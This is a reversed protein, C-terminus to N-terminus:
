QLEKHMIQGGLNNTWASAGIALANVFLIGLVMKQSVSGKKFSTFLAYASLLATIGIPWIAKEAAEEHEEIIQKSVQTQSKLYEEAPEGTVYAGASLAGTLVALALGARLFETNRIKLSALIFLFSFTMGIVPFHNLVIHIHAANM